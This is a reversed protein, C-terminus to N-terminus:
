VGPEDPSTSLAAGWCHMSAVFNIVFVLADIEELALFAGYLSSPVVPWLPQDVTGYKVLAVSMFKLAVRTRASVLLEQGWDFETEEEVELTPVEM